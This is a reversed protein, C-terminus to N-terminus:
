PDLGQMTREVVNYFEDEMAAWEPDSIEVHYETITPQHFLRPCGEDSPDPPLRDIEPPSASCALLSIPALLMTRTMVSANAVQAGCNRRCRSRRRRSRSCTSTARRSPLTM